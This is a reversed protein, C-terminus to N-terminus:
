SDIKGGLEKRVIGELSSALSAISFPLPLGIDSSNSGGSNDEVVLM